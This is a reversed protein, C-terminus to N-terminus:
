EKLNFVEVFIKKEFDEIKIIESEVENKIKLEKIENILLLANEMKTPIDKEKSILEYEKVYQQFKEKM